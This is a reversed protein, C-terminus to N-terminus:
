VPLSTIWPRPGSDKSGRPSRQQTGAKRSHSPGHKARSSHVLLHLLERDRQRQLLNLIMSFLCLIHWTNPAEKILAQHSRPVNQPTFNSPLERPQQCRKPRFKWSSLSFAPQFAFREPSGSSTPELRSAGGHPVKRVKRRYAGLGFSSLRLGWIEGWGSFYRRWCCLKLGLAVHGECAVTVGHWRCLEPLLHISGWLVYFVTLFHRTTEVWPWFTPTGHSILSTPKRFYTETFYSCKNTTVRVTRSFLMFEVQLKISRCWTGPTELATLGTSVDKRVRVRLFPPRPLRPVRVRTPIKRQINRQSCTWQWNVMSPWPWQAKMSSISSFVESHWRPPPSKEPVKEQRSWGHETRQYATHCM